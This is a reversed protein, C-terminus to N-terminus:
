DLVGDITPDDPVATTTEDAETPAEPPCLWFRGPTDDVGVVAFAAAELGVPALISDLIPPELVAPTAEDAGARADAELLWVWIKGPRDDVGVAAFAAAELGVPALMGDLKPLEPVAATAEAEVGAEAETDPLM